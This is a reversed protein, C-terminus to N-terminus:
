LTDNKEIKSVRDLEYRFDKSQHFTKFIKDRFYM